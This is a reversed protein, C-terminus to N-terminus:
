WVTLVDRDLITAAANRVQSAVEIADRVDDPSPGPTESSPYEFSTRAQWTVLRNRRRRRPWTAAPM